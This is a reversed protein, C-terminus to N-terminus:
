SDRRWECGTTSFYKDGQQLVIRIPDDLVTYGHERVAEPNNGQENMTHTLISYNCGRSDPLLKGTYIGYPLEDPAVVYDGDGFVSGVGVTVTSTVPAPTPQAAVVALVVVGAL